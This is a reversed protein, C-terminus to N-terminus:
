YIGCRPKRRPATNVLAPVLGAGVRYPVHQCARLLTPAPSTGARALLIFFYLIGLHAPFYKVARLCLPLIESAGAPLQLPTFLHPLMALVQVVSSHYPIFSTCHSGTLPSSENVICRLRQTLSEIYM